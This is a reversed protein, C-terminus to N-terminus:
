GDNNRAYFNIKTIEFLYAVLEVSGSACAAMFITAGTNERSNPNAKAEEILYKTFAIDKNMVAIM